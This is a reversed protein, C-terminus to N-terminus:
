SVSVETRSSPSPYASGCLGTCLSRRPCADQVRQTRRPELSGTRVRGTASQRCAMFHARLRCLSMRVACGSLTLSVCCALPRGLRVIAPLNAQGSPPPGAVAAGGPVAFSVRDSPVGSVDVVVGAVCGIFPFPRSSSRMQTDSARGGVVGDGGQGGRAGWRACSVSALISECSVCGKVPRVASVASVVFGRAGGWVPRVVGCLM